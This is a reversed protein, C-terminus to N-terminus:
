RGLRALQALEGILEHLLREGTTQEDEGVRIQLEVLRLGLHDEVAVLKAGLPDIQALGTQIERRHEASVVDVPEADLAAAVLHDRLDFAGLAQSGILERLDVDGAGIVLENGERGKGGELGGSLWPLQLFELLEIGHADLTHDRGRDREVLRQAEEFRFGAGHQRLAEGDIVRALRPM